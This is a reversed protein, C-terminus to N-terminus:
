SGDNLVSTLVVWERKSDEDDDDNDNDRLSAPELRWARTGREM